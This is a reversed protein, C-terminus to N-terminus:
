LCPTCPRTPGGLGQIPLRHRTPRRCGPRAQPRSPPFPIPDKLHMSYSAKALVYHMVNGAYLRQLASSLGSLDTGDRGNKRFCQSRGTHGPIRKQNEGFKAGFKVGFKEGFKNSRVVPRALVYHMVNERPHAPALCGNDGRGGPFGWRWKSIEPGEDM